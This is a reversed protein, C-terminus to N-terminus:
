GLYPNICIVATFKFAELKGDGIFNKNNSTCQFWLSSVRQLWSDIGWIYVTSLNLYILLHIILTPINTKIYSKCIMEYYKM